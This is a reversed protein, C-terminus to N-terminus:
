VFILFQFRVRALSKLLITNSKIYGNSFFQPNQSLDYSPDYGLNYAYNFNPDFTPDYNPDYTPNYTADYYSM